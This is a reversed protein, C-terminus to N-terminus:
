PGTEELVTLSRCVQLSIDFLCQCFELPVRFFMEVHFLHCDDAQSLHQGDLRARRKFLAFAAEDGAGEVVGGALDVVELECALAFGEAHGGRVGEPRAVAVVPDGGDVEADAFGEFCQRACRMNFSYGLPWLRFRNVVDLDFAVMDVADAFAAHQHM